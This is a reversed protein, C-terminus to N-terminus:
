FDMENGSWRNYDKDINKRNNKMIKEAADARQRLDL